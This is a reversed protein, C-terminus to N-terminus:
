QISNEISKQFNTFFGLFAPPSHTLQVAGKSHILYKLTIQYKGKNSTHCPWAGKYSGVDKAAFIISRILVFVPLVKL